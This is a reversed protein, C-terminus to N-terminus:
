RAKAWEITFLIDGSRAGARQAAQEFDDSTCTEFFVVKREPNLTNELSRLRREASRSM